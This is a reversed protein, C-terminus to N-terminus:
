GYESDSSPFMKLIDDETFSINAAKADGDAPQCPLDEVDEALDIDEALFAHV